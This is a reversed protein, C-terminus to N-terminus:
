GDILLSDLWVIREVYIVYKGKANFKEVREEITEAIEKKTEINTRRKRQLTLRTKAVCFIIVYFCLAKKNYHHVKLSEIQNNLSQEIDQQRGLRIDDLEIASFQPGEPCLKSCFRICCVCVCVIVM